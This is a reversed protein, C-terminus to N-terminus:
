WPGRGLRRGADADVRAYDFAVRYLRDADGEHVAVLREVLERASGLVDVYAGDLSGFPLEPLRDALLRGATLTDAALRVLDAPDARIEGM